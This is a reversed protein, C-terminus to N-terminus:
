SPLFEIQEVPIDTMIKIRGEIEFNKPWIIKWEGEQFSKKEIQVLANINRFIDIIKEIMNEFFKALHFHSGEPLFLFEIWHIQVKNKTWSM